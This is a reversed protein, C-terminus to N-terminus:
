LIDAYCDNKRKTFVVESPFLSESMNAMGVVTLAWGRLQEPLRYCINENEEEITVLPQGEKSIGVSVVEFRNQGEKLRLVPQKSIDFYVKAGRKNRFYESTEPYIPEVPLKNHIQQFHKELRQCMYSNCYEPQMDLEKEIDKVNDFHNMFELLGLLSILDDSYNGGYVKYWDINIELIIHHLM